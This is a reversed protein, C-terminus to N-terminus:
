QDDSRSAEREERERGGMVPALGILARLYNAERVLLRQREVIIGQLLSLLGTNRVAIQDTM